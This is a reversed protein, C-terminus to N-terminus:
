KLAQLMEKVENAQSGNPALELYKAFDAKAEANKKAQVSALGRYYYSDALAPDLDIAKTMYARAEEPKSKNMFVIALSTYVAPDRVAGPALGDLIAKGEATKGQSVLNDALLIQAETNGPELQVVKRLSEEAKATNGEAHYTQAVGKWLPASNPLIALAKEYEARAEAYKKEGLLKNGETVAATIEAGVDRGPQAGAVPAAAKELLIEMSPVRGAETINVSLKRPEYGPVTVDVNWIGGILGLIAWYGKANTKTSIGGGKERTLEVQASAIPQGNADKVWGDVRGKGRWDQGPLAGAPLLAVSLLFPLFRFRM